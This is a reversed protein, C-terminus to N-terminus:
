NGYFISMFFNVFIDYEYVVNLFPDKEILSLGQRGIETSCLVTLVLFAIWIFLVGKVLGVMGGALKNAGNLVPLGALVNLIWTGLRLIVSAMMYSVAFSLGNIIMRALAESVYEGFTEVSLYAYVEETNNAELGKQLLEPLELDEIFGTQSGTNEGEDKEGSSVFRECSERVMEYVPTNEMFFENVYPNIAWSVAIALFVFFFSVVERIFGRKYGRYAVVALIALVVIGLWTLTM